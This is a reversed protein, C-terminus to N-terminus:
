AHAHQYAVLRERFSAPIEVSRREGGIPICIPTITAEFAPVGDPLSATVALDFSTRRVDAVRVVMDFVDDPRLAALFVFRLAKIPMGVGLVRIREAQPGGFMEALFLEMASIMYDSFRVTYVVGAPDCEGFRVRRRITFPSTAVVHETSNM